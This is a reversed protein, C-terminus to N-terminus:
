TLMVTSQYKLARALPPWWFGPPLFSSINGEVLVTKNMWASPDSMIIDGLSSSEDLIGNLQAELNTVNSALFNITANDSAIQKKLNTVNSNLEFIQADLSSITSNKGNIAFTYAATVGALCAVLIVCIVGLAIIVSIKSGKAEGM